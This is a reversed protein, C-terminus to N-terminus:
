VELIITRTAEAQAAKTRRERRELGTTRAPSQMREVHIYMRISHIVDSRVEHLVHSGEVPAGDEQATAGGQECGPAGAVGGNVSLLPLCNGPLMASSTKSGMLPARCYRSTRPSLRSAGIAM